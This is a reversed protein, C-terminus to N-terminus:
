QKIGMKAKLESFRKEIVEQPPRPAEVTATLSLTPEPIQEGTMIRKAMSNLAKKLQKEFIQENWEKNKRKCYLDTILWYEANNSFGYEAQYDALGEMGFSSFLEIKRALEDENPLGISHYDIENCWGIFEGVSPFFPKQSKVAFRIGNQLQTQTCIKAEVLAELWVRKAIRYSEEDPFSNKWAPFVGRLQKFLWNVVSTAETPIKHVVQQSHSIAEQPKVVKALKFEAVNQM